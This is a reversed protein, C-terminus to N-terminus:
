GAELHLLVMAAVAVAMGAVARPRYREQWLWM